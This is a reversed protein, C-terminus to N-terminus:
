PTVPEREPQPAPAPEPDDLPEPQPQPEAVPLELPEVLITKVSKGIQM